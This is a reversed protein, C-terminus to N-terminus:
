KNSNSSRWQNVMVKKGVVGMVELVVVGNVILTTTRGFHPNNRFYTKRTTITKNTM